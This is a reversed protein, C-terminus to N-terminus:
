LLTFAIFTVHIIDAKNLYRNKIKFQQGKHGSNVINTYYKLAEKYSTITMQTFSKGTVHAARSVIVPM